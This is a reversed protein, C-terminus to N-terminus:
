RRALIYCRSLALGSSSVFELDTRLRLSLQRGTM